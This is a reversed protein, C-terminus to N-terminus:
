SRAPQHLGLAALALTVEAFGSDTWIQPLPVNAAVRVFLQERRQNLGFTLLDQLPSVLSHLGEQHYAYPQGGVLHWFYVHQNSGGTSYTGSEAPKLFVGDAAQLVVARERRTCQWGNQIWCTDPTHVGVSRPPVKGPRWYAVYVTVTIGARTYARSVHGDFQLISAVANKTEETEALPLDRTTWGQVARPVLRDLDPLPRPAPLRATSWLQLGAACALLAVMSCFLNRPLNGAM